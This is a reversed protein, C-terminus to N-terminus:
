VEQRALRGRAGDRCHGRGAEALPQGPKRCPSSLVALAGAPWRQASASASFSNGRARPGGRHMQEKLWTSTQLTKYFLPLFLEEFHERAARSGGAEHGSVWSDHGGKGSADARVKGPAQLRADPSLRCPLPRRHDSLSKQGILASPM